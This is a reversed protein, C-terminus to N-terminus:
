DHVETDRGCVLLARERPTHENKPRGRRLGDTNLRAEDEAVVGVRRLRDDRASPGSSAGGGPLAAVLSSAERSTGPSGRFLGVADSHSHASEAERDGRQSTM